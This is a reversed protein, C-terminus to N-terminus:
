PNNRRVDSERVRVDPTKTPCAPGSVVDDRRVPMEHIQHEPTSPVSARAFAGTQTQRADLQVFAHGHM